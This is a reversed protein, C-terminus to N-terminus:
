PPLVREIYGGVSVACTAYDLSKFGDYCPGQSPQVGYTDKITWYQNVNDYGVLVVSHKDSSSCEYIPCDRNDLRFSNPSTYGIRVYLPGKEVLAQQFGERDARAFGYGLIKWLSVPGGNKCLNEPCYNLYCYAFAPYLYPCCDEDPIGHSEIYLFPNYLYDTGGYKGYSLLYKESLNIDLNPNNEQIKYKAEMVGVSAFAWCSPCDGQEKAPTLWNYGGKNRWDFIIPMVCAGNSCTKGAPCSVKRSVCRYNSCYYEVVRNADYCYESYTRYFYTCTGFRDLDYGGDTNSCIPVAAPAPNISVPNINSNSHTVATIKALNLLIPFGSNSGLNLIALVLGAIIIIGVVLAVARTQKFAFNM